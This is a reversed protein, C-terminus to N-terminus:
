ALFAILWQAAPGNTRNFGAELTVYLLYTDLGLILTKLAFLCRVMTLRLEEVQASNLPQKIKVPLNIFRLPNSSVATALSIVTILIYVLLSIGPYIFIETKSGWGDPLGRFNFHTPISDPLSPYNVVTLYFIAALLSLPLIEYQLPYIRNLKQLMTVAM